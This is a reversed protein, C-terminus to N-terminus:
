SAPAIWRALEELLDRLPELGAVTFEAHTLVPDGASEDEGAVRITMAQPQEARLAEFGDEDTVDDGAFLIAAGPATAGLTEALRLLATGKNVRVPPRLEFMKKGRHLALGAGTAAREAAREVAVIAEAGPVQRYHVTISWRKGEVRAGPVRAVDIRLADYAAAIAPAYPAVLPDVTTVGDPTVVEAGHNGVVWLGESFGLVRVADPAARGSVIAVDTAPAATLAAVARRTREPVAADEPRQVLPALTGDVDLAVLLTANPDRAEVLRSRAAGAIEAISPPTGPPLAAAAAAAPDASTV